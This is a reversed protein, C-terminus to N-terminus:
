LGRGAAYALVLWGAIFGLGGLPTIMGLARVGTLALLYLSACFLVTGVLFLTGALRLGPAQPAHLALLGVGLLALAHYMHYRGATEFTTLLVPDLRTRLAHAGFAGLLVALAANLAGAMLMFRPM